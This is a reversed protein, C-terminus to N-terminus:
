RPRARAELVALTAPDFDCDYEVPLWTGGANRFEARGGGFTVTGRSAQLWAFRDFKPSAADADADLWRVGFSALEEVAAACAATAPVIVKAAACRADCGVGVAAAPLSVDAAVTAHAAAPLTAAPEPPGPRLLWALAAVLVLAATVLAARRWPRAAPARYLIAM